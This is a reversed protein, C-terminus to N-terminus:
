HAEFTVKARAVDGSRLADKPMWFQYVGNDGFPWYMMDDSALQLVMRMNPRTFMDNGQIDAGAGFMLHPVRIPTRYGANLVDRWVQPLRAFAENSGAAMLKIADTAYDRWLVPLIFDSFTKFDKSRAEAFWADFHAEEEPEMMQFPDSAVDTSTLRAVYNRVAAEQADAEAIREQGAKLWFEADKQEKVRDSFPQQGAPAPGGTDLAQLTSQANEVWKRGSARSHAVQDTMKAAREILILAALWPVPPGELGMQKAEYRANFNYEREPYFQRIAARQAKFDADGGRSGPAVNVDPLARFEVPWFPFASPAFRQARVVFPDGGVDEVESLDTPVPSSLAGPSKAYVICGGLRKKRAFGVFFVFAGQKPLATRGGGAIAIEALDLQALFHLPRGQDDRPWSEDGLKPAGGLWSKADFWGADGIRRERRALVLSPPESSTGGSLLKRLAGFM